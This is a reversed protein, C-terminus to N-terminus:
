KENVPLTPAGSSNSKHMLWLWRISCREPILGPGNVEAVLSLLVPSLWQTRKESSSISTLPAKHTDGSM